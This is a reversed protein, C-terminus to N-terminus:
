PPASCPPNPPPPTSAATSASPFTSTSPASSPTMPAPSTTRSRSSPPPPRPSHVPSLRPSPTTTRGALRTRPAKCSQGACLRWPPACLYLWLGRTVTPAEHGLATEVIARLATLADTFSRTTDFFTRMFATSSVTRLLAVTPAFAASAREAPSTESNLTDSVLRHVLLFRYSDVGRRRLRRLIHAASVTTPGVLHQADPHDTLGVWRQQRTCVITDFHPNQQVHEGNTCLTCAWRTPILTACHECSSGDPHREWAAPDADLYLAPRRNLATLANLWPDGGVSTSHDRVSATAQTLAPKHISSSHNAALIRHSYSDLTERHHRRCDFTFQEIMGSGGQRTLSLLSRPTGSKSKRALLIERASTAHRDVEHRDMLEETITEIADPGANILESASSILLRALSGISGSTREFLYDSLKVM